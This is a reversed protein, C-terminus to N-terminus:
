RDIPGASAALPSASSRAQAPPGRRTLRIGAGDVGDADAACDAWNGQKGSGGGDPESPRLRM